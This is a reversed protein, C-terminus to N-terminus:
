VFTARKAASPSQQTAARQTPGVALARRLMKALATATPPRQEPRKALAYGLVESALEPVDRRCEHIRPSPLALHAQVVDQATGIFPPHGAIAEFVLCALAYVDSRPSAEGGAILEPAIYAITGVLQDPATLLSYDPRKALGLDMLTAHQGDGVIVNAPKVDRHVLGAAHLADLGAAVGDVLRKVVDLPLPEGSAVVRDLPTGTLLPMVIYHQDGDVGVDLVDVVHPHTVARMARSERLFRRAHDPEDALVERLVKLAVDAAASSRRARFVRGIGGSGIEEVLDYPGIRDGIHAM